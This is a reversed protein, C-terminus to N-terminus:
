LSVLRHDLTPMSVEIIGCHNELILVYVRTHEHHSPRQDRKFTTSITIVAMYGTPALEYWAQHVPVRM